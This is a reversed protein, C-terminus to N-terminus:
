CPLFCGMGGKKERAGGLWGGGYGRGQGLMYGRRASKKISFGGGWIRLDGVRECKSIPFAGLTKLHM